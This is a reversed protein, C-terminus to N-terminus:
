QYENVNLIQEEWAVQYKMDRRGNDNRRKKSNDRVFWVLGFWFGGCFSVLSSLEYGGRGIRRMM